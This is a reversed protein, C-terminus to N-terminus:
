LTALRLGLAVNFLLLCVTSIIWPLPKSYFPTSDREIYDKELDSSATESADESLPLDSYKYGRSSSDLTGLGIASSRGFGRNARQV